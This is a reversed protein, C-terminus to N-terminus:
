PMPFLEEAPLILDAGSAHVIHQFDLNLVVAVSERVSIRRLAASDSQRVRSRAEMLEVAFPAFSVPSFLSNPPAMTVM